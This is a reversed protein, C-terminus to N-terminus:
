EELLIGGTPTQAAAPESADIRLSSNGIVSLRYAIIMSRILSTNGQLELGANPLYFTGQISWDANGTITM